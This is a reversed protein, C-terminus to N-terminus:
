ISLLIRYTENDSNETLLIANGFSRTCDVMRMFTVRNCIYTKFLLNKYIENRLESPLKLFPFIENRDRDRPNSVHASAM